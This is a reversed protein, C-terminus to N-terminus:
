DSLMIEMLTDKTLLPLLTIFIEKPIAVCGETHHLLGSADPKSCHFFIASGHGAIVPNDNYGLEIIIDYCDDQDRWLTEHSATCPLAILQNYSPHEPADCWGMDQTIIHTSLTTTPLPAPLKDARLFCRRLQWTGAPTAGDGERKQQAAIIGSKGLACPIIQDDFRLIGHHLPANPQHIVSIISTPM